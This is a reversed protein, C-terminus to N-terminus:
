YRGFIEGMSMGEDYKGFCPLTTAHYLQLTNAHHKHKASWGVPCALAAYDKILTKFM